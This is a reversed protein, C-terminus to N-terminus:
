CSAFGKWCVCMCVCVRWYVSVRMGVLAYVGVYVHAYKAKCVSYHEIANIKTEDCQRFGESCGDYTFKILHGTRSPFFFIYVRVCM